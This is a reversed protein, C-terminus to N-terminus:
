QVALVMAVMANTANTATPATIASQATMVTIVIEAANAIGATNANGVIEVAEAIGVAMIRKTIQSSILPERQLIKQLIRVLAMLRSTRAILFRKM